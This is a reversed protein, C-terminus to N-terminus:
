LKAIAQFDPMVQMAQEKWSRLERLEEQQQQRIHQCGALLKVIKNRVLRAVRLREKNKDTMAYGDMVWDELDSDTPLYTALAKEDSQEEDAQQSLLDFLASRLDEDILTVMEGNITKTPSSKLETLLKDKTSQM